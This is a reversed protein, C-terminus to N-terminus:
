KTRQPKENGHVARPMARHLDGQVRKWDGHLGGPIRRRPVDEPSWMLAYSGIGDLIGEVFSKSKKRSQDNM